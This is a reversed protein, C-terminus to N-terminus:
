FVIKMGDYATHMGSNKLLEKTETHPRHLPIAIHSAVIVGNEAIMNEMHIAEVLMRLMPITNHECLRWDNNDGVTCDLVMVDFKHKKMEEWSPRLFWAGDLGYFVEKGDPTKITYHFACADGDLIVHHNALLPTIEYAGMTKTEFPKFITYEINSHEGIENMIDKACGVRIKKNEAIKLISEPCFHDYHNHTIVIDTVNDYLNKNGYYEAFDFIHSGCDLMLENDLLAASHRRCLGSKEERICNSGGTGLFLIESM